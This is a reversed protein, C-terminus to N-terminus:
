SNKSPKQPTKTDKTFRRVSREARFCGEQIKFVSRILYKTAQKNVKKKASYSAKVLLGVIYYFDDDELADEIVPDLQDAIDIFLCETKLKKDPYEQAYRSKIKNLIGELRGDDTVTFTISETPYKLFMENKFGCAKCRYYRIIGPKIKRRQTGTQDLKNGCKPCNM